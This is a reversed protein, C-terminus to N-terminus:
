SFEPNLLKRPETLKTKPLWLTSLGFNKPSVALFSAAVGLYIFNPSSKQTGPDHGIAFHSTSSTIQKAAKGWYFFLFLPHHATGSLQWQVAVLFFGTKIKRVSVVWFSWRSCKCVIREDRKKIELCELVILARQFLAVFLHQSSRWLLYWNLEELDFYYKVSSLFSWQSFWLYIRDTRFPNKYVGSYKAAAGAAALAVSAAVGM